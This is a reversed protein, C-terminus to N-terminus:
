VACKGVDGGSENQQIGVTREIEKYQLHCLNDDLSQKAWRFGFAAMAVVVATSLTARVITWMHQLVMLLAFWQGVRFTFVTVPLRWGKLFFSPLHPVIWVAFLGVLAWLVIHVLV